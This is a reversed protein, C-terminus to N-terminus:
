GYINFSENINNMAKLMKHCYIFPGVVIVSGLVNWLWFDKAGFKCDYGRRRAEDGIRNSLNHLWVLPLIGCTIPALTCMGMYSMTRKGDYRSAAINLDTVIQCYTVIGYIGLTVISLLVFKLLSRDTPLVIKPPQTRPAYSQYAAYPNQDLVTTGGIDDGAFQTGCYPCAVAHEVVQNNCNPCYM